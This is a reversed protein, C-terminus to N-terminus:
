AVKLIQNNLCCKCMKIYWIFEVVIKLLTNFTDSIYYYGESENMVIFEM